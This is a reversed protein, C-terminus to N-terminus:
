EDNNGEEPEDEDVDEDYEDEELKYKYQMEGRDIDWDLLRINDLLLTRGEPAEYGTTEFSLKLDRASAVVRQGREGLLM